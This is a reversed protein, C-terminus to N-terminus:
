GYESSDEEIEVDPMGVEDLIPFRLYHSTM